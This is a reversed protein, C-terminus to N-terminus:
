MCGWCLGIYMELVVRWLVGYLGLVARSVVGWVVTGIGGHLGVM